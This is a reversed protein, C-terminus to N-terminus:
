RFVTGGRARPASECLSAQRYALRWAAVPGDITRDILNPRAGGRSTHRGAEWVIHIPEGLKWPVTRKEVPDFIHKNPNSLTFGNLDIENIWLHRYTGWNTKSTTSIIRIDLSKRQSATTYWINLIKNVEPAQVAAIRKLLDGNPNNAEDRWLEAATVLNLLRQTAAQKKLADWPELFAEKEAKRFEPDHKRWVDPIHEALSNKLQKANGEYIRLQRGLESQSDYDSPVPPVTGPAKGWGEKVLGRWTAQAQETVSVTPPPDPEEELQKIKIELQKFKIELQEINIDRNKITSKRSELQERLERKEGESLERTAALEANL